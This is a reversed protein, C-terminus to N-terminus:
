SWLKVVAFAALPVTLNDQVPLTEAIAAVASAAVLAPGSPAPLPVVVFVLASSALTAGFCALSGALTKHPAHPLRPSPVASGVLAAATDGVCLASLAVYTAACARWGVVTLLVTALAYAATANADQHRSARPARAVADVLASSRPARAIRLAHSLPVTAALLRSAAHRPYLYFSLAFLPATSM